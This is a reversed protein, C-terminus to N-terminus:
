WGYAVLKRKGVIKSTKRLQKRDNLRVLAVAVRNPDCAYIPQLKSHTETYTKPPNFFGADRLKLVHMPLANRVPAKQASKTPKTRKYRSPQRDVEKLAEDLLTRIKQLVAIIKDTSM